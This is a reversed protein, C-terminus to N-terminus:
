QASATNAREAAAPSRGPLLGLLALGFASAPGVVLMLRKRRVTDRPAAAAQAAAVPVLVANQSLFFSEGGGLDTASIMMLKAVLPLCTKTLPRTSSSRARVTIAVKIHVHAREGELAPRGNRSM